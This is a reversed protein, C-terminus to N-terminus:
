PQRHGAEAELYYIGSGHNKPSSTCVDHEIGIKALFHHADKENKPYVQISTYKVIIKIKQKTRKTRIIGDTAVKLTYLISSESKIPNNDKKPETKATPQLTSIVQKLMAFLVAAWTGDFAVVRPQTM